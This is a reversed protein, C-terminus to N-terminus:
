IDAEVEETVQLIQRLIKKSRYISAKITGRPIALREAIQPITLDEIYHLRIITAYREPLQSIAALIDIRDEVTNWPDVSTTLRLDEEELDVSYSSLQTRSYHRLAKFCSNRAITFLWPELQLARIRDAPFNKLSTYMAIFTQQVIDDANPENVFQCAYRWLRHSYQEVVTPFNLDLNEALLLVLVNADIVSSKTAQVLEDTNSRPIGETM